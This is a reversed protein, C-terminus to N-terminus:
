YQIEFIYKKNKDLRLCGDKLILLDRDVKARSIKFFGAAEQLSRFYKHNFLIPKGGPPNEHRWKIYKPDKLNKTIIKRLIEANQSRRKTQSSSWYKKLRISIENRIIPSEFAKKVGIQVRKRWEPNKALDKNKETNKKM